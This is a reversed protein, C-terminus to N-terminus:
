PPVGRSWTSWNCRAAALRDAGTDLRTSLGQELVPRLVASALEGPSADTTLEDWHTTVLGEAGSAEARALLYQLLGREQTPLREAWSDLKDAFTSLDTESLTVEEPENAM